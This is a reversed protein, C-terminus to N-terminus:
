FGAALLATPQFQTPAEDLSVRLMRPAGEVARIMYDPTPLIRAYWGEPLELAVDGNSFHPRGQKESISGFFVAMRPEAASWEIVLAVGTHANDGGELAQRM